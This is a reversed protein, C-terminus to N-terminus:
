DGTKSPIDRRVYYTYKKTNKLIVQCKRRLTHQLERLFHVVGIYSTRIRITGTFTRYYRRRDHMNMFMLYVCPCLYGTSYVRRRQPGEREGGCILEWRRLLYGYSLVRISFSWTLQGNGDEIYCTVTLNGCHILSGIRLMSSLM